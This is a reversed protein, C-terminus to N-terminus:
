QVTSQLKISHEEALVVIEQGFRREPLPFPTLEGPNDVGM